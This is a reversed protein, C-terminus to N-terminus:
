PTFTLTGDITLGEIGQAPDDNVYKVNIISLKDANTNMFINLADVETRLTSVSSELAAVRSEIDNISFTTGSTTGTGTLAAVTTSLTTITAEFENVKDTIPGIDFTPQTRTLRPANGPRNRVTSFPIAM